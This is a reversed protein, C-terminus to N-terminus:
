AKCNKLTVHARLHLINNIFYDHNDKMLEAWTIGLLNGCGRGTKGDLTVDNAKFKNHFEKSPKNMVEFDYDLTCTERTGALEKCMFLALHQQQEEAWRKARLYLATGGLSFTQSDIFRSPSLSELEEKKIDFSVVCYPSHVRGSLGCDQPIALNKSVHIQRLWPLDVKSFLAEMVLKSVQEHEFDPCSLVEKLKSCSMIPFCIFGMLRNTFIQKREELDPYFSRGWKLIFDFVEDESVVEIASIPLEMAEKHSKTFDRHRDVFYQKAADILPKVIENELVSCPLELYFRASELSMPFKLLMEVCHRMCSTVEFKDAAILLDVLDPASTASVANGYM